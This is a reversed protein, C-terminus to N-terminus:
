FITTYKLGSYLTYFIVKSYTLDSLNPDCNFEIYTSIFLAPTTKRELKAGQLVPHPYLVRFRVKVEFKLEFNPNRLRKLALEKRKHSLPENNNM